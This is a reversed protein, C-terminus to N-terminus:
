SNEAKTQTKLSLAHLEGSQFSESLMNLIIKHRKVMPMGEFSDSIIRLQLNCDDGIFELRADSLANQIITQIHEKNMLGQMQFGTHSQKVSIAM